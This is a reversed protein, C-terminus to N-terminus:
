PNPAQGASAMTGGGFNPQYPPRFAMLQECRPMQLRLSPDIWYRIGDYVIRGEGVAKNWRTMSEVNNFAPIPVTLVWHDPLPLVDHDATFSTARFKQQDNIAKPKMVGDQIGRVLSHSAEMPKPEALKMFILFLFSCLLMQKSNVSVLM